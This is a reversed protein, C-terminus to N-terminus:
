CQNFRSPEGAAFIVRDDCFFGVEEFTEFILFQVFLINDPKSFDKLSVIRFSSASIASSQVRYRARFSGRNLPCLSLNPIYYGQLHAMSDNLPSTATATAPRRRFN